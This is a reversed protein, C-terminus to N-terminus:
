IDYIKHHVFIIIRHISVRSATEHKGFFEPEQVATWARSTSIFKFNVNSPFSSRSESMHWAISKIHSWWLRYPHTISTCVIVKPLNRCIWGPLSDNYIFNGEELWHSPEINDAHQCRDFDPHEGHGVHKHIVYNTISRFKATMLQGDGNTTDFDPHEGHGVHKHIVYNTISRFKATM